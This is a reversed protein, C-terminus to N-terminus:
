SKVSGIYEGNVTAKASYVYALLADSNVRRANIVPM